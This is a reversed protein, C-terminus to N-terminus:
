INDYTISYRLTFSGARPEGSARWGGQHRLPGSRATAGGARRGPPVYSYYSTIITMTFVITVKTYSYYYDFHGAPAGVQLCVSITILASSINNTTIIVVIITIRTRSIFVRLLLVVVVVVVIVVSVLLM